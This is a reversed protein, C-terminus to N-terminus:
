MLCEVTRKTAERRNFMTSAVISNGGKTEMGGEEENEYEDLYGEQFGFGSVGVDRWSGFWEEDDAVEVM